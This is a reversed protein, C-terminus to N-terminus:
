DNRLWGDDRRVWRNGQADTFSLELWDPYGDGEIRERAGPPLPGSGVSQSEEVNGFMASVDVEFIPGQSGNVVTATWFGGENDEPWGEHQVWVLSAQERAALAQQSTALRHQAAALRHQRVAVVVSVALSALGLVIGAWEVV